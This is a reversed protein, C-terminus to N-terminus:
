GPLNLNAGTKAGRTTHNHRHAVNTVAAADTTRRRLSTGEPATSTTTAPDECPKNRLPSNTRILENFDEQLFPAGKPLKAIYDGNVGVVEGFLAPLAQAVNPNPVARMTFNLEIYPTSGERFLRVYPRAHMVAIAIKDAHFYVIPRPDKVLTAVHTNLFDRGFPIFSADMYVMYACPVLPFMDVPAVGPTTRYMVFYKSNFLGALTLRILDSDLNLENLDLGTVVEIKAM